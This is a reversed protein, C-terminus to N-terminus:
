VSLRGEGMFTIRTVLLLALGQNMATSQSKKLKRCVASSKESGGQKGYVSM